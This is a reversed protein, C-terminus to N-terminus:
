GASQGSAWGCGSGGITRDGVSPRAFRACGPWGAWAGCARVGHVTRRVGEQMGVWRGEHRPWGCARM